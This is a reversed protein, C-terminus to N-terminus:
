DLVARGMISSAVPVEDRHTAHVPFNDDGFYEEEMALHKVSMLDALLSDDSAISDDDEEANPVARKKGVENGDNEIEMNYLERLYSDQLVPKPMFVGHESGELVIVRSNPPDQPVLLNGSVCDMICNDPLPNGQQDFIEEFKPDV